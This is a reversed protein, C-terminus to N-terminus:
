ILLASLNRVSRKYFLPVIVLLSPPFAIAMALLIGQPLNMESPYASYRALISICLLLCGYCLTVLLVFLQASFFVIFCFLIPSLMIGTCAVATRCKYILFSSPSRAYIWVYYDPEQRSHWNVALFFTGLISFLGLGSNASLVAMLMIFVFLVFFFFNQRFGSLFEFAHAPFPTPLVRSVEVRPNIFAMAISCGVLVFAELFEHFCVLTVTFPLLILINELMTIQRSRREGFLLLLFDTKPKSSNNLAMSLGVFVFAYAAFGTSTFAWTSLFVFLAPILVWFIVSPLGSSAFLRDIMKLRFFFYAKL